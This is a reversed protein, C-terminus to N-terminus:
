KKEEVFEVYGCKGCTFRDKHKAMFAGIGCKPCFKNSRELKNGSTKYLAWRQSPKKQKVKKKPM